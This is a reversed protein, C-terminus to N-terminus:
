MSHCFAMIDPINFKKLLSLGSLTMQLSGNIGTIGDHIKEDMSYISTSFMGVYCEGLARAIDESILTANSFIILDFGYNRALKIIDVADDRVFLEGGTLVIEFTGMDRLQRFIDDLEDIQLMDNGHDPIYCHKCRMNCQTCVEITVSAPINYVDAIQFVDGYEIDDLKPMQNM